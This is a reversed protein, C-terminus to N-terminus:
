SLVRWKENKKDQTSLVENLSGSRYGELDVTVYTYGLAKLGTIVKQRTDDVFFNPIMSPAVEIKITKGQHRARIGKFGLDALLNEASDVMRLKDLTIKEGYPFRSSLCALAEKNWTPINFQRSLFRIEDKTLHVEQLPSRVGLERLARKGPRHDGKDDENSGDVMHHIGEDTIIKAIDTFLEKKCFYCRDVPNKVFDDRQMENTSIVRLRAGIKAAVDVALSYERSPYTPSVALIATVKTGLAEVAAHLLFSSDVGGSYAVVVEGMEKLVALLRIYKEQASHM